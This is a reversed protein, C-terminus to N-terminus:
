HHCLWGGNYKLSSGRVLECVSQQMKRVPAVVVVVVAEVM